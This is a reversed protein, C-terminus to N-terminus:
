EAAFGLYYDLTVSDGVKAEDLRKVKESVTLTDSHGCGDKITVERTKHDIAEITGTVSVLMEAERGPAKRHAPATEQGLLPLTLTLAALTALTRNIYQTQTKM